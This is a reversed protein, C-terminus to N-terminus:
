NRFVSYRGCGPEYNQPIRDGAHLLAVTGSDPRHTYDPLCIWGTTTTEKVAVPVAQYAAANAASHRVVEEFFWSSTIIALAGTSGALAKKLPEADLLRFTLNIAAATAGHEDFNVEGAHLAMRLRIRELDSHASNHARLTGALASPLTEAFLSKPVEANVLILMGDGRDEHDRDTWPIGAQGFAERMARYLGDRIAVQNRNTRQRNGFGEVDVAIITRHVALSPNEMPRIPTLSRQHGAPADNLQGVAIGDHPAVRSGAPVRPDHADPEYTGRDHRQDQVFALIRPNATIFAAFDKTQVVLAWIMELAVVTASRVSVQLAAREGILQGQGREVLVREKGNESVRISARGTLIVLVYDASEGQEMITAGAAFPRVSGVSRLVERETPKLIDWFPIAAPRTTGHEQANALQQRLEDTERAARDARAEAEALKKRLQETRGVHAPDLDQASPGTRTARGLTAQPATEPAQAEPMPGPGPASTIAPPHWFTDQMRAALQAIAKRVAPSSAPEFRLERWDTYQRAALAAALPDADRRGPDNIQPTSIYYVPLILDDRGLRRERDLFQEAEARCHRSRFFGPTIIVLLLTVADLAQDIRRQWNQGWAIDARDQFIAFEEGTQVRIEAALRVRFATLQGDDHQDDFRAYSMFAAPQGAM